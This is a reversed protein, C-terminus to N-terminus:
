PPAGRDLTVTAGARDVAGVRVQCGAGLGRYADGMAVAIRDASEQGRALAFATPGSGSISSGLAGAALAAAKAEAFGPLLGARAPEAIRDDVARALLEYDGLALAAVLAGVHAAQHLAVARSVERPLVARAEATRMRQEPRALVVYLEPPVPLRVLDLPDISRILVIGGLLSPAINDAHRGAVAEEADLCLEILEVEGLPQGLLANMAVAGAVASAASGGQGGSLPLGKRVSLGVGRGRALRAGARELVARAALGATHREAERPLEPHGPDLIRIGPQATWEARVADGEGAVALGLIDLGPGVNGVSGPAFATVADDSM